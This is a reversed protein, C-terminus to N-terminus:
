SPTSGEDEMMGLEAFHHLQDILLDIYEETMWENCLDIYSDDKM